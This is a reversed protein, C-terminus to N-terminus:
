GVQGQRIAEVGLRQAVCDARCGLVLFPEFCDLIRLVDCPHDVRTEVLDFSFRKGLVESTQAFPDIASSPSSSRGPMTQESCAQLTTAAAPQPLVSCITLAVICPSPRRNLRVWVWAPTSASRLRRFSFSNGLVRSKTAVM